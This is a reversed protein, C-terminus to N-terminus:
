QFLSIIMNHNMLENKPKREYKPGVKDYGIDYDYKVISIDLSSRSINEKICM